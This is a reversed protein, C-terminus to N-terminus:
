TIPGMAVRTRFIELYPKLMIISCSEWQITAPDGATSYKTDASIVTYNSTAKEMNVTAYAWNKQWRGTKALEKGTTDCIRAPDKLTSSVVVVQHQLAMANGKQFKIM